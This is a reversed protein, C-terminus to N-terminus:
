MFLELLLQNIRVTEMLILLVEKTYDMGVTTAYCLLYNANKQLNNSHTRTSCLSNPTVSVTGHQKKQERYISHVSYFEGSTFKNSEKM